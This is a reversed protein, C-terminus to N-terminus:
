SSCGYFMDVMNTVNSTDFGSVDLSTLGSCGEFLFSADTMGTVNIVASTIQSSYPRWASGSLDGTGEVTLKGNADIVWTIDGDKGSAINGAVDSGGVIEMTEPTPEDIGTDDAVEPAEMDSGSVTVVTEVPSEEPASEEVTEPTEGEGSLELTEVARAEEAWVPVVSGQGILMGAVATLAVWKKWKKWRQGRM